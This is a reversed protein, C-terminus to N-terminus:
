DEEVDPQTTTLRMAIPVPLRPEIGPGTLDFVTDGGSRHIQQTAWASLRPYLGQWENCAKTYYRSYLSSRVHNTPSPDLWHPTCVSEFSNPAASSHAAISSVASRAPFFLPFQLLNARIRIVPINRMVHRTSRERM